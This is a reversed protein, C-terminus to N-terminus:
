RRLAILLVAYVVLRRKGTTAPKLKTISSHANGDVKNLLKKIKQKCGDCACQINIRLVCTQLKMFDQKNM